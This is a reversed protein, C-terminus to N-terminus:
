RRRDVTLQAQLSACTRDFLEIPDLLFILGLPDHPEGKLQELRLVIVDVDCMKGIM